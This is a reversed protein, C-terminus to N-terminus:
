ALVRLLCRDFEAGLEAYSAAAAAPLARVVLLSSGPLSSVRERVHHRLRRKVLNRTVAPGVAKSVVFGARPSADGVGTLLHVVLLPGGARRGRRVAQRFEDPKTLRNSSSLV